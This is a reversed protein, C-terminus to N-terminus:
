QEQLVMSKIFEDWAPVNSPRTQSFEDWENLIEKGPRGKYLSELTKTLFFETSFGSYAVISLFLNQTYVGYLLQKNDRDLLATIYGEGPVILHLYQIPQDYIPSGMERCFAVDTGPIEIETYSKILVKTGQKAANGVQKKLYEIPLPSSDLAIIDKGKKILGSVLIYLQEINEIGYIGELAPAPVVSAISDELVKRKSAFRHEIQDLYNCIPQATYYKVKTSEDLLVLGTKQLSELAKYTNAAPENLLKAIQYGTSKVGNLLSLYIRSQLKSLGIDVLLQLHKDRPNM